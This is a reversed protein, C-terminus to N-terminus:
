SLKAKLLIQKRKSKTIEVNGLFIVMDNAILVNGKLPIILNQMGKFIEEEVIEQLITKNAEKEKSAMDAEEEEKDVDVDKGEEINSTKM